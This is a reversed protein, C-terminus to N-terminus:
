SSGLIEVVQTCAEEAASRAADRQDAGQRGVFCLVYAEGFLGRAVASGSPDGYSTGTPQFQCM